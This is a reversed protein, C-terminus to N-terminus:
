IESLDKADPVVIGDATFYMGLQESADLDSYVPVMSIDSWGIYTQIVTDPIGARKFNTVTAHRVAHWYFDIGLLRSFAAAWTNMTPVEIHENPNAKTPFLWESEIGHEKRYELWRDLYPQFQKALCFCELQKGQVGRGKTKIKGTQYLSGGCVLRDPTFDSLRFRPIEAKRRGSYLALAFACARDYQKKETLTNLLYEAQDSTIITKERVPQNVPSEVKTIVNRFTPFEDDLINSIFNSMSSLTAKARRVRAPSNGNTNMLWNQYAVVNRKTWDVFFKNGNFQLNWVFAINLDNRYQDITGQSRSISQLYDLFDNMLQINQPNVQALLEPSTISNIVTKRAM